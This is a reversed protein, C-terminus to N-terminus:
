FAVYPGTAVSSTYGEFVTYVTNGYYFPLGWDFSGTLSTNGTSPLVGALNSFAIYTPESTSLSESSAVSFNVTYATGVPTGSVNEGQLTASLSLPSSPCYFGAYNGTCQTISSDAFYYGNSGTDFVSYPLTQGNFTTQFEGIDPDLAVVRQTGSKNNTETDVGFTMTGAVSAAGVAPVSALTIIVGNNDVGFLTVPNTVQAALTGTGSPQCASATCSYYSSYQDSASGASVCSPGCDQAYVGVGLLGNAGFQAVTNEATGTGSCTGPAAPIGSSGILQVPVSSATEGAIQLDATVVSGWSYGDAFQTCEVLTNGASVTEVPLTVMVASSVLRLGFSGTDVQINDITQCQTTSGPVCVTVSTYLTNIEAGQTPVPGPDVQVTLVNAVAPPPPPPSGGGSAPAIPGGGGGGCASLAAISTLAAIRLIKSLARM